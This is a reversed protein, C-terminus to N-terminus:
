GGKASLKNVAEIFAVKIKELSIPETTVPIWDQSTATLQTQGPVYNDDRQTLNLKIGDVGAGAKRNFSLWWFASCSEPKLDKAHADIEREISAYDGPIIRLSKLYGLMSGTSELNMKFAPKAQGNNNTYLGVKNIQM